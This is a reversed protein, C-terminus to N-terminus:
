RASGLVLEGAVFHTSGRGPGSLGLYGADGPAGVAVRRGGVAFARGSWGGLVGTLEGHSGDHAAAARTLRLLGRCRAVERGAAFSEPEDEHAGGRESLVLRLEGEGGGLTLGPLAGAEALEAELLWRLRATSAARRAPDTFLVDGDLGAVDTIWGHATLAAGRELVTGILHMGGPPRAAQDARAAAPALALVPGGVATGAGLLFSRRSLSM